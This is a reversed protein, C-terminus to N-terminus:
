NNVANRLRVVSLLLEAGDLDDNPRFRGSLDTELLNRTVVNVVANYYAATPRVDAYPSSEQGLWKTALSDDGTVKIIIDELVLAMEKRDVSQEPKFLRAKTTADTTPELGRVNWKMVELIERKFPHDLVDAPIYDTGPAENSALKGSFLDDLKLETVILTAVDARSVSDQAAIAKSVGAVTYNAIAQEIKQVRAYLANAKRHWKGMDSGVVMGLMDKAKTYEGAEFWAQGMFYQLAEANEYYPLESEVVAKIVRGKEYWASVKKMWKDPTRGDKATTECRVGAIAVILKDAPKKADSSADDLLDRFKELQVKMHEADDQTPVEMAALLAQGAYAPAYDPDLEIARAFMGAAEAPKGEDIFEMGARYRNPPTDEPSTQEAGKPGCGVLLLAMLLGTIYVKMNRM